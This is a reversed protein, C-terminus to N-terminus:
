GRVRRLEWFEIADPHDRACLYWSDADELKSFVRGTVRWHAPNHDIRRVWALAWGPTPASPCVEVQLEGDGEYGYMRPVRHEATTREPLPEDAEDLVPEVRAAVGGLTARLSEDALLQQVESLLPQDGSRAGGALPEDHAYIELHEVWRELKRALEDLVGDITTEQGVDAFGELSVTYGGHQPEGRQWGFYGSRSYTIALKLAQPAPGSM